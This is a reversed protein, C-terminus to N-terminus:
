IIELLMIVDLIAMVGVCVISEKGESSSLTYVM